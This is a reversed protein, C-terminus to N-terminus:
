KKKSFQRNKPRSAAFYYFEDKPPPPDPSSFLSRAPTRPAGLSLHRGSLVAYFLIEECSISPLRRVDQTRDADGFPAATATAHLAGCIWALRLWRYYNM